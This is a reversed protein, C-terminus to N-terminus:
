PNLLHELRNTNEAVEIFHIYEDGDNMSDIIINGSVNDPHLTKATGRLLIEIKDNRNEQCTRVCLFWEGHENEHSSQCLNAL